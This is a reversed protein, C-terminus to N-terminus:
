VQCPIFADPYPLSLFGLGTKCCQYGAIFIKRQSFTNVLLMNIIFLFATIHATVRLRYPKLKGFYASCARPCSMSV